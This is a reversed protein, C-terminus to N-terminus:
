EKQHKIMDTALIDVYNRSYKETSAVPTNDQATGSPTLAV